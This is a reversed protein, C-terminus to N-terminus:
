VATSEANHTINWIYSDKTTFRDFTKSTYIGFKEKLKENSNWHSWNNNTYDYMEPEMNTKDRYMFEQIEVGKGGGKSRCKQRRTNGCRDTYM